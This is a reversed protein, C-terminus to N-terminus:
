SVRKYVHWVSLGKFRGTDQFLSLWYEWEHNPVEHNTGIIRFEVPATAKQKEDDASYYLTVMTKRMSSYQSALSADITLLKTSVPLDISVHEQIPIEIRFVKIM